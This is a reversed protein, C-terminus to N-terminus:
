SEVCDDWRLFRLWDFEALWGNAAMEEGLSQMEIVVSDESSASRRPFDWNTAVPPTWPPSKRESFPRTARSINQRKSWRTECIQLESNVTNTILNSSIFLKRWFFRDEVSQTHKKQRQLCPLGKRWCRIRPLPKEASLFCRSVREVESNFHIGMMCYWSQVVTPRFFSQPMM